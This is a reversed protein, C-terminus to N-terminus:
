NKVKFPNSFKPDTVTTYDTLSNLFAILAAKDEDPINMQVATGDTSKFTTDLNPSNQIGHSYHDIVEDLTKFRGDHMYPATLAVNILSPTRFKGNDTAQGSVAGAGLDGYTQDLGIDKLDITSYMGINSGRVHHCNDCNYKGMFLNEGMQEQSNLTLAGRLSLEYRSSSSRISMMFISLCESIRNSTISADGYAKKFLEPYFSLAALKVPLVDPDTIGMEVHNTIPRDALNFLVRERGDWFLPQGPENIFEVSFFSDAGAINHIGKSNRRTLKGEFGLSFTADDAFANAQKHCSACAIANNVSLHSDYFLVRGLTAKINPTSDTFYTNQVFYKDASAPLDLYVTGSPVSASKHCSVAVVVLTVIFLLLSVKKM